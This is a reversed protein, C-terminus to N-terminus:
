FDHAQARKLTLPFQRLALAHPNKSSLVSLAFRSRCEPVLVGKERNNRDSPGRNEGVTFHVSIPNNICARDYTRLEPFICPLHQLM